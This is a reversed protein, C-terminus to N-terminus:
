GEAEAVDLFEQRLAADCDRVLADPTPDKGKTGHDCAPQPRPAWLRHCKSSTNTRMPPLCIYRHRATSASPSTSSTSTWALRSLRAAWFSIRLSRFFCPM